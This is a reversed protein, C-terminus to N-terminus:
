IVHWAKAKAEMSTYEKQIKIEIGHLAMRQIKELSMKGEEEQGSRENKKTNRKEELPKWREFLLHLYLDKKSGLQEGAIKKATVKQNSM